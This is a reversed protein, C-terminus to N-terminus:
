QTDTPKEKVGPIALYDVNRLRKNYHTYKGYRSSTVDADTKEYSEIRNKLLDVSHTFGEVKMMIQRPKGVTMYNERNSLLELVDYLGQLHTRIEERVTSVFRTMRKPHEADHILNCGHSNVPLELLKNVIVDRSSDDCHSFINKRYLHNTKKSLEDALTNTEQKTCYRAVGAITTPISDEQLAAVDVDGVAITSTNYSDKINKLQGVSESFNVFFENDEGLVERLDRKVVDHAVRFKEMWWLVFWASMDSMGFEESYTSDTQQFATRDEVDIKHFKTEMNETKWESNSNVHDADKNVLDWQKKTKYINVDAKNSEVKPEGIFTGDKTILQHSPELQDRINKNQIKKETTKTQKVGNVDGNLKIEGNNLRKFFDIKSSIPDSHSNLHWFLHNLATEDPFKDLIEVYDTLQKLMDLSSVLNIDIMYPDTKLEAM